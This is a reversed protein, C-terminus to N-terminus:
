LTFRRGEICSVQTRDRPPFSGRSFSVAIWELIRAQFVGHISFGPPSCDMSDRLTLCSQTVESLHQSHPKGPPETTFSDVQLASSLLHLNLEWTLFFEQLLAHCGVGAVKGPSDWLCLLRTPSLGSPLLSNSMVLAVSYAWM